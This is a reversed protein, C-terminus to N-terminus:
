KRGGREARRSMTRGLAGKRAQVSKRALRRDAAPTQTRRASVRSNGGPAVQRKETKARAREAAQAQGRAAHALKAARDRDQRECVNRVEDLEPAFAQIDSGRMLFTEEGVGKSRLSEFPVGRDELEAKLMAAAGEDKVTVEVLEDKAEARSAAAELSAYNPFRAPAIKSAANGLHFDAVAKVTPASAAPFEFRAVGDAITLEFPVGLRELPDAIIRAKPDWKVTTFDLSAKGAPGETTEADALIAPAAKSAAERLAAKSVAQERSFHALLGMVEPDVDALPTHPNASPVIVRDKQSFPAHVSVEGPRSNDYVEFVALYSGEALERNALSWTADPTLEGTVAYEIGNRDLVSRIFEFDDENDVVVEMAPEDEDNEPAGAQSPSAAGGNKRSAAIIDDLAGAIDAKAARYAESIRERMREARGGSPSAARSGGARSRNVLMGVAQEVTRFFDQSFEDGADPM